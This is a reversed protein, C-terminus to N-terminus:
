GFLGGVLRGTAAALSGAAPNEQAPAPTSPTAAAPAPAPTSAAPAPAPTPTPTPESAAPAPAPAAAVPTVAGVAPEATPASAAPAPAPANAQAAAAQMAAEPAPSPDAAPAAPAPAPAVPTSVEVVPAVGVPITPQPVETSATAHVPQPQPRAQRRAVEAVESRDTAVSVSATRLAATPQAVLAAAAAAAQTPGTRGASDRLRSMLRALPDGDASSRSFSDTRGSLALPKGDLEYGSTILPRSAYQNVTTAAQLLSSISAASPAVGRISDMGTSGRDITSPRGGSAVVQM